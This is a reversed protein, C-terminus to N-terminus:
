KRARKAIFTMVQKDKTDFSDPRPLPENPKIVKTIVPAGLKLEDDKVEYICPYNGKGDLVLDVAKPRQNPDLELRVNKFVPMEGKPGFFTLRGDKIVIRELGFDAGRIKRGAMEVSEVEWNSELKALDAKVDDDAAAVSPVCLVVTLIARHWKM